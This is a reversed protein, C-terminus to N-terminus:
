WTSMGTRTFVFRFHYCYSDEWEYQFTNRQHKARVRSIDLPANILGGSDIDLTSSWLLASPSIQALVGDPRRRKPVASVFEGRRSCLLAFCCCGLCCGVKGVGLAGRMRRM